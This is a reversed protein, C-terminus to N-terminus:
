DWKEEKWNRKKTPLWVTFGRETMWKRSHTLYQELVQPDFFHSMSSGQYQPDSIGHCSISPPFGLTFLPVAPLSLLKSPFWVSYHPLHAMPYSLPFVANSLVSLRNPPNLVADLGSNHSLNLWFFLIGSLSVPMAFVKCYSGSFCTCPILLFGTRNSSSSRPHSHYSVIDSLKYPGSRM